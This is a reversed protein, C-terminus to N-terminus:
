PLISGRGRPLRELILEPLRKLRGHRLKPLLERGGDAALKLVLEVM